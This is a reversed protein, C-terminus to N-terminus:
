TEKRSASRGRGQGGRGGRGKGGGRGRGRGGQGGRGSKQRSNANKGQGRSRSSNHERKEDQEKIFAQEQRIQEEIALQEEILRQMDEEEQAIATISAARERREVYWQGEIGVASMGDQKAKLEEEKRQIENFSTKRRPAQASSSSITTSHYSQVTLAAPPPPPSTAWAPGEKKKAPPRKPELFAGLSMKKTGPSLSPLSPKKAYAASPKPPAPPQKPKAHRLQQEEELIRQFNTTMKQGGSSNMQLVKGSTPSWSPPHNAPKQPTHDMNEYIPPPPPELRYRPQPVPETPSSTWPSKRAQPQARAEVQDAALLQRRKAELTAAAAAKKEEEKVQKVRNRHRKGGIHMTLANEDPCSIDCLDCRYQSAAAPPPANDGEADDEALIKGDEFMKAKKVQVKSESEITSPTSKARSAIEATSSTSSIKCEAHLRRALEEDNVLTLKRESRPIRLAVNGSPTSLTSVPLSLLMEKSSAMWGLGEVDIKGLEGAGSRAIDFLLPHLPGDSIGDEENENDPLSLFRTISENLFMDLHKKKALAIVADLNRRIFRTCHSILTGCGMRESQILLPLANFLDIHKAIQQTALAQLSPVGPPKEPQKVNSTCTSTSLSPFSTGILLVTHEKAAAIGIARHVGPVRRPVPQYRVGKHGLVDNTENAGWTYLHGSDAFYQPPSFSIFLPHPFM